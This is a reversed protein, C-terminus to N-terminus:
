ENGTGFSVADRLEPVFACGQCGKLVGANVEVPNEDEGPLPRAETITRRLIGCAALTMAGLLEALHRCTM